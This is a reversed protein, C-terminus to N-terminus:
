PLRLRWTCESLYALIMLGLAALALLPAYEKYQTYKPQEGSTKELENIKSMVQKMGEADAARFYNGGTIEALNQLLKEDFSAGQRQIRGSDVFFANESGIGVTHIIVNFETALKAAQEPTLKNRATNSGDTFLVVVRRPADSKKLRAVGTGLPSAIGTLDGLIGPTLNKLHSLLWAHDLTPPSLNYAKEAFGVLGIRDNPRAEIFKRIEEKAIELRNKLAGSEVANLLEQGTRISDPVDYTAMSGSLDIALIIDIGQSRILFKESGVRPRSLAIIILFLAGLMCILAFGFKRRSRVAAFPQTSAVTISPQRQFLGCYLAIPPILLLLLLLWPYAFEM